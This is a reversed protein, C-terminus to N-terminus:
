VAGVGVWQDVMPSPRIHIGAREAWGSTVLDEFSVERTGGRQGGTAAATDPSRYSIGDPPGPCAPSPDPVPVALDFDPSLDPRLVLSSGINTANRDRQTLAWSAPGAPGPGAAPAGLFRWELFRLISTHDYTTHDVGGRAAFPSALVTPVRFGGQGFNTADDASARDDTFRAPAVHDFFGGWEDYTLVFLGEAWHRSRAFAAFVDRAFREGAHIDGHPHNDTRTAGVFGPDVFSVAPLSGAACDTFFDAVPHSIGGLRSGWLATIPFDTSYYRAPVSAAALRDWITEWGFGGPPPFANTMNGGSQASHLYMRNPFTPGLLSAHSNGCVTFRKALAATFPLDGADYYGLAYADNGSKPALFGGDRQARGATWSHGPDPHGCGRAPSSEGAVDPFQQHQNADVGFAKGYRSRGAALWAADTALWGIWHDFSRNEMMLVVVHGIPSSAAPRGLLAEDAPKRKPAARHNTSSSCASVGLSGLATAGAVGGALRAATALFERRDTM